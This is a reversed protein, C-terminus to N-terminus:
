RHRRDTGVNPPPSPRILLGRWYENELPNASWGGNKGRRRPQRHCGHASEGSPRRTTRAIVHWETCTRALWTTSCGGCLDLRMSKGTGIDDPYSGAPALGPAGGIWLGDGCDGKRQGLVSREPSRCESADSRGVLLGRGSNNRVVPAAATRDAQDAASRPCQEM